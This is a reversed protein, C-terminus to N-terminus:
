PGLVFQLGCNSRCAANPRLGTPVIESSWVFGLAFGLARQELDQGSTCKPGLHMWLWHPAQKAWPGQAAACIRVTALDMAANTQLPACSSDSTTWDKQLNSNKGHKVLRDVPGGHGGRFYHLSLSAAPSAVEQAAEWAELQGARAQLSCAPVVCREDHVTPPARGMERGLPFPEKHFNQREM